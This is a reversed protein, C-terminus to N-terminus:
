FRWIRAWQAPRICCAPTRKMYVLFYLLMLLFCLLLTALCALVPLAAVRRLHENRQPLRRLTYDSRAGRREYVLFLILGVLLVAAALAAFLTGVPRFLEAFDPMVADPRLVGRVYLASRKTRWSGLFTLSYLLALGWFALLAYLPNHWDYGPPVLRSLDPRRHPM